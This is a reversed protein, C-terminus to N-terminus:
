FGVPPGSKLITPGDGMDLVVDGCALHECQWPDTKGGTSSYKVVTQEGHEPCTGKPEATLTDWVEDADDDEGRHQGADVREIVMEIAEDFPHKGDGSFTEALDCTMAYAAYALAEQDDAAARDFDRAFVAHALPLNGLVKVDPEPIPESETYKAIHGWSCDGDVLLDHCVPCRTLEGIPRETPM